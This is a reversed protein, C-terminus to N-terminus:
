EGNDRDVDGSDVTESDDVDEGLSEDEQIYEAFLKPLMSERDSWEGAILALDVSCLKEFNLELIIFFYKDSFTSVHTTIM